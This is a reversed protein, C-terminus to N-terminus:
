DAVQPRTRSVVEGPLGWERGGLRSVPAMRAYSPRGDVLVEDAVTIWVVEGLVMVSGGLDVTSHLRCELAAPSGAVRPPSVREAPAMEIGVAVSEDTGHSFPASTDNVLDLMPESALSITFEETELVNRLTDKRGVSTFAVIPPDASAVTFFSHPALNGEGEVSLTSVWAIPRPVVISTLLSYANVDESAPDFGTM